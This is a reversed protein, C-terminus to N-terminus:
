FDFRVVESTGASIMGKELGSHITKEADRNDCEDVRVKCSKCVPRASKTM